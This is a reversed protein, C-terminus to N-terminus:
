KKHKDRIKKLTSNNSYESTLLNEALDYVGFTGEATYNIKM